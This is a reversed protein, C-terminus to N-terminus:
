RLYFNKPLFNLLFVEVQFRARFHYTIGISFLLHYVTGNSFLSNYVISYWVLWDFKNSFMDDHSRSTSTFSTCPPVPSVPSVHYLLYLLYLLYLHHPYLLNYLQKQQVVDYVVFSCYSSIIMNM